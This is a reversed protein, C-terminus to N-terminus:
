GKPHAPVAFHKVLFSFRFPLRALDERRGLRGRVPFGILRVSPPKDTTHQGLGHLVIKPFLTALFIFFFVLIM